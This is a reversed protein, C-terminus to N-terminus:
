DHDHEPSSEAPRMVHVQDIVWSNGRKVMGFHINQGAQLPSIDISEDVSFDMTMAPWDLEPIPDHQLRLKHESPMVGRVVAGALVRQAGEASGAAPPNSSEDSALMDATVESMDATEDDEDFVQALM